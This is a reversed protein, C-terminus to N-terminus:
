LLREAMVLKAADIHKKKVSAKPSVLQQLAVHQETLSRALRKVESASFQTIKKEANKQEIEGAIEPDIRSVHELTEAGRQTLLVEFANRDSIHTVLESLMNIISERKQPDLSEALEYHSIRKLSTLIPGLAERSIIYFYYEDKAYILKKLEIIAETPVVLFIHPYIKANKKVKDATQRVADDIYTQLSRAKSAKADFIVYQDLFEVLFDPKLSGDFDEPLNTNSYTTFQLQPQKCLDTLTSIVTNEHDAWVRDREEELKRLREEDERIVRQREEKLAQQASELKEVMQRHEKEQQERRAEMKTLASQLGDREKTAAKYESELNKFRDYLEKGKGALENKERRETELDKEMRALDKSLDEQKVPEPAKQLQLLLNALIGLACVIGITILLVNM